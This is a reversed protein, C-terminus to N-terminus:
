RHIRTTGNPPNSAPTPRHGRKRALMLAGAGLALLAWTGPEPVATLRVADVDWYGSGVGSTALLQIGINRGAWADDPQVEALSVGQEILLTVTPFQELGFEVPTIALPVPVSADDRYYLSIEFRDGEAIFGAGLMRLNLHYSLGAQYTAELDQYLGVGSFAFLYGVQVGDVNTIHDPSDPPSNPFIGTLQSWEMGGPPEVNPPQPLEM